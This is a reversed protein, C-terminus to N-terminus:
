GSVAILMYASGDVSGYSVSLRGSGLDAQSYGALTLSANPRGAAIAHLTLGTYGAAGQGDQWNVSFGQQTVGWITATDGAHLGAVTSWIDSAAGRDDVFFNDLGSGGTLFNSGTGGDLVNTGGHATIADTGSGTHIFWNDSDATLNLNDATLTVYQEAIGAVPGSYPQGAISLPQGTTTDLGSLLPSSSQLLTSAPPTPNGSLGTGDDQAVWGNITAIDAATLQVFTGAGTASSGTSVLGVVVPGSATQVWVPGGSSGEGISTGRLVSFNPDALVADASSVQAGGAWSPYGTVTATGGQYDAGLGMTGLDGLPQALHILAFDFQSQQTSIVGGYDRIPYYHFLTAAVTGYPTSGLDYGPSVMIDSATGIGAQYVVHSATLVEDPAILVGSAQYKQGGIVDTVRVVTDHPYTASQAPM